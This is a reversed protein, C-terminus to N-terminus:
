AGNFCSGSAGAEQYTPVLQVRTEILDRYRRALDRHINAVSPDDAREAAALEEEIRNRYYSENDAM